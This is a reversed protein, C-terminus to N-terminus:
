LHRFDAVIRQVAAERTTGRAALESDSMEAVAQLRRSIANAESISTLFNFVSTAIRSLLSPSHSASHFTADTM